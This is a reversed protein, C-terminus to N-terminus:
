PSRRPSSKAVPWKSVAFTFQIEFSTNQAPGKVAHLLGIVCKQLQLNTFEVHAPPHVDALRGDPLVTAVLDIFIPEDSDGLHCEASTEEAKRFLAHIISDRSQRAFRAKAGVLLREIDEAPVALNLNQGDSIAATTIGVLKGRADFLGGGSSGQSIAASTQLMVQDGAIRRIGSIIGESISRELGKPNGIAVVREGVKLASSARLEAASLGKVGPYYLLALDTGRDVFLCEATAGFATAPAVKIEQYCDGRVSPDLAVHASTVLYDGVAVASGAGGKTTLSYIQPSFRKFLDTPALEPPAAGLALALLLANM